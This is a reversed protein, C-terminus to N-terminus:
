VVANAEAYEPFSRFPTGCGGKGRLTATIRHNMSGYISKDLAAQKNGSFGDESHREMVKAQRRM